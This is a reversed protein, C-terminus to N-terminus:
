RLPDPDLEHHAIVSGGELGRQARQEMELEDPPTFTESWIAWCSTRGGVQCSQRPYENCFTIRGELDTVVAALRVNELM